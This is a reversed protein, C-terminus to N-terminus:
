CRMLHRMRRQSATNTPWSEVPCRFYRMGLSFAGMMWGMQTPTLGLDQAIMDEAAAICARDIWMLMSILFAGLILLYRIPV